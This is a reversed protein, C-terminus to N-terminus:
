QDLTLVKKLIDGVFSEDIRGVLGSDVSDHVFRRVSSECDDEAASSVGLFGGFAELEQVRRGVAQLEPATQALVQQLLEALRM